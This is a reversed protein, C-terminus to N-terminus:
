LSKHILYGVIMLLLGSIFGIVMALFFNIHAAAALLRDGFLFVLAGVVLLARALVRMVGSSTGPSIGPSAPKPDAM